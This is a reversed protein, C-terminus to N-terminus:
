GELERRHVEDQAGADVMTAEINCQVTKTERSKGWLVSYLGGCLLIGGIVSCNQMSLFFLLPLFLDIIWSKYENIASRVYLITYLKGVRWPSVDRRSLLFFLINNPHLHTSDLRHSLCSGEDRHVMSPSLLETRVGFVGPGNIQQIWAHMYVPLDINKFIATAKKSIPQAFSYFYDRLIALM